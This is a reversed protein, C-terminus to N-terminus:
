EGEGWFDGPRVEDWGLETKELLGLRMLGLRGHFSHGEEWCIKM